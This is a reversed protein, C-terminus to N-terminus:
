VYNRKALSPDEEEQYSYNVPQSVVVHVPVASATAAAGHMPGHVEQSALPVKNSSTSTSTSTSASLGGGAAGQAPDAPGCCQTPCCISGCTICTFFLMMFSAV